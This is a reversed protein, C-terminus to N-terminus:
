VINTVRVRVEVGIKRILQLLARLSCLTSKSYLTNSQVDMGRLLQVVDQLSCLYVKVTHLALNNEGRNKLRPKLLGRGLKPLFM